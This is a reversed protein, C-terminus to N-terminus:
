SGCGCAADSAPHPDPAAVGLRCALADLKAAAGERVKRGVEVADGIEALGAGCKAARAASIELCPQCNATVSAGVAILSATRADLRMHHM